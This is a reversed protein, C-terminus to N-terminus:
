DVLPTHQSSRRPATVKEKCKLIHVETFHKYCPKHYFAFTRNAGRDNKGQRPNTESAGAAVGSCFGWPLLQMCFM